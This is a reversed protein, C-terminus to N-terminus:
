QISAVFSGDLLKKPDVPKGIFKHSLLFRNVDRATRYLRGPKEPSGFEAVVEQVTTYLHTGKLMREFDRPKTGAGKAMIAVAEPRTRPTTFRKMADFWARLIAKADEPRDKLVQRRFVLLDVISGDIERSSFLIKGKKSDEAQYLFPNWTVAVEASGAIFAAGAEDGPMNKVTVDSEQLGHKDLAKLLLYHSVSGEELVVTRGKLNHFGIGPKALIGDGGDSFDNVLVAVLDIGKSAPVITDNLTLSCADLKGAALAQASELYNKFFVTQASARHKQFLKKENVIWWPMWGTWLSIGIKLPPPASHAPVLASFTLMGILALAAFLRTLVM